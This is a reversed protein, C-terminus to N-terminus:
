GLSGMAKRGRGPVAGPGLPKHFHSALMRLHGACRGSPPGVRLQLLSCPPESTDLIVRPSINSSWVLRVQHGTSKDAFIESGVVVGAEAKPKICVGHARSTQAEPWGWEVPPFVLAPLLFVVAQGLQCLVNPVFELSSGLTEM